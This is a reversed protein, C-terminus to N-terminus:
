QPSRPLRDPGIGLRRASGTRGARVRRHRWALALATLAASVALDYRGGLGVLADLVVFFGLIGTVVWLGDRGLPGTTAWHRVALVGILLPTLAAALGAPWPLGTRTTLERRGRM